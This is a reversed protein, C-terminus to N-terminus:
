GILRESPTFAFHMRGGPGDQAVPRLDFAPLPESSVVTETLAPAEPSRNGAGDEMVVAHRFRGFVFPGTEYGIATAPMLHQDLLHTGEGHGDSGASDLHGAVLHGGELHPAAQAVDPWLLQRRSTVPHVWDIGGDGDEGYVQFGDASGYPRRRVVGLRIRRVRCRGKM